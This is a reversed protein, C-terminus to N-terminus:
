KAVAQLAKKAVAVHETVSLQSNFVEIVTGEKNIVYTVRGPLIGFTSPVGFAKRMTNDTDVLLPYKLSFKQDFASHEAASGASVGLIACDLEAFDDM